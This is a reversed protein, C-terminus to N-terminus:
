GDLHERRVRPRTRHPGGHRTGPHYSAILSRDYNLWTRRGDSWRGNVLTFARLAGASTRVPRPSWIRWTRMSPMVDPRKSGPSRMTSRRMAMSSPTLWAGTRSASRWSSASRSISVIGLRPARTRSNVSCSKASNKGTRAPRSSVAASRATDRSAPRRRPGRLGCRAARRPPGSGVDHPVADREVALDDLGGAVAQQARDPLREADLDPRGQGYAAVVGLQAALGGLVDLDGLREAALVGADAPHQVVMHM